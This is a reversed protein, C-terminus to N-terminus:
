IEGKEEDEEFRDRLAINKFIENRTESEYKMLAKELMDEKSSIYEFLVMNILSNKTMGQTKALLDLKYWADSQLRLSVVKTRGSDGSSM